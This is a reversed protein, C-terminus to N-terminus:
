TVQSKESPEQESKKKDMMEIKVEIDRFRDRRPLIAGFIGAGAAAMSILLVFSLLRIIEKIKM